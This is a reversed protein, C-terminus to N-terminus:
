SCSCPCFSCSTPLCLCSFSTNVGWLGESGWDLDHLDVRGTYYRARPMYIGSYAGPQKPYNAALGESHTLVILDDKTAIAMKEEHVAIGMAKQFTRPLQVIQGQENLSIFIVKGAQYTSIALTCGLTHLIQAFDSSASCAFPPLNPNHFQPPSKQKM